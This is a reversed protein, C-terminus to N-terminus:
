VTLNAATLLLWQVGAIHRAMYWTGKMINSINLIKCGTGSSYFCHSHIIVFEAWSAILDKGESCNENFLQM